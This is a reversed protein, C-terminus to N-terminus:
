RATFGCGGAGYPDAQTGVRRGERGAGKERRAAERLYRAFADAIEDQAIQLEESIEEPNYQSQTVEIM